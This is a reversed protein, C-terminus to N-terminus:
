SVQNRINILTDQVDRHQRQLNENLTTDRKGLEYDLLDKMTRLQEQEQAAQPQAQLHQSSMMM